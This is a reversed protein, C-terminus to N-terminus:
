RSTGPPDRFDYGGPDGTSGLHLQEGDADRMRVLSAVKPKLASSWTPALAACYNM